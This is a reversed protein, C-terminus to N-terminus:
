SAPEADPVHIGCENKDFGSWRGSRPDAGAVVPKTCHTCGISPYGRDLLENYPVGNAAIYAWVQRETWAALPNLKVLGFKADWEVVRVDRRGESQDRRLGSIWARKGELVRRNPEVKRLECCLDPDRSWLEDGHQAAQEAVTLLSKYAKARFGYRQECTEKLDYTEPFLFDTDLCFVEVTPDVKMTMDLLAMGSIGSFSCALSLGPQFTEVAWAIAWQPERGELGENLRDITEPEFTTIKM